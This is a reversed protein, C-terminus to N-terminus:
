ECVPVSSDVCFLSCYPVVVLCFFNRFLSFVIINVVGMERLEDAVSNM